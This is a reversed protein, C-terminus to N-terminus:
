WSVAVAQSLRPASEDVIDAIIGPLPLTCFGAKDAAGPLPAIMASGTETKGGPTWHDPLPQRGGSRYYWM